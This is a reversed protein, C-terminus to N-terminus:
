CCTDHRINQEDVGVFRRDVRENGREELRPV